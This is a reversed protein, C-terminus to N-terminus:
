QHIPEEVAVGIEAPSRVDAARAHTKVGDASSPGRSAEDPQLELQGPEFLHDRGRSFDNRRRLVPGHADPERAHRCHRGRSEATEEGSMLLAESPPSVEGRCTPCGALGALKTRAQANEMDGNIACLEGRALPRDRVCLGRHFTLLRALVWEGNPRRLYNVEARSLCARDDSTNKDTGGRLTYPLLGERM